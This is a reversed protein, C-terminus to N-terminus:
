SPSDLRGQEIWETDGSSYQLHLWDDTDDMVWDVAGTLEITNTLHTVTIPNDADAIQLILEEGDDLDGATISDLVDAADGEGAVLHYGRDIVRTLVGGSLTATADEGNKLTWPSSANDIGRFEVPMETLAEQSFLMTLDSVTQAYPIDLYVIIGDRRTAVVRLSFQADAVSGGSLTFVNGAPTIGLAKAISDTHFQVLNAKVRIDRKTTKLIAPGDLGEVFYEMREGAITPEIGGERGIFGLGTAAVSGATGYLLVARQWIANTVVETVM